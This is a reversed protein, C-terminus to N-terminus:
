DNCNFDDVRLADYLSESHQIEEVQPGGGMLADLSRKTESHEWTSMGGGAGLWAAPVLAALGDVLTLLYDTDDGLFSRERIDDLRSM